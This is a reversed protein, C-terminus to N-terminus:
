KSSCGVICMSVSINVLNNFRTTFSVSSCGPLFVCVTFDPPTGLVPAETWTHNPQAVKGMCGGSFEFEVSNTNKNSTEDCLSSWDNARNETRIGEWSFPPCPHFNWAEAWAKTKRTVFGQGSVWWSDGLVLSVATVWRIEKWPNPARHWFSPCHQRWVHM